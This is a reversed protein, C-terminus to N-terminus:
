RPQVSKLFYAVRDFGSELFCSVRDLFAELFSAACDLFAELFYAASNFCTDLFYAPISVAPLNILFYAGVTAFNPKSIIDATWDTAALTTLYTGTTPSGVEFTRFCSEDLPKVFGRIHNM